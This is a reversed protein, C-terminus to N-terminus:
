AGIYPSYIEEAPDMNEFASEIADEWDADEDIQIVGDEDYSPDEFVQGFRNSNMAPELTSLTRM